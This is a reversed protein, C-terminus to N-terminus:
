ADAGPGARLMRAVGPTRCSFSRLSVRAPSEPPAAPSPGPTTGTAAQTM